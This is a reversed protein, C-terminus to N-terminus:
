KGDKFWMKGYIDTKIIKRIKPALMAAVDISIEQGRAQLMLDGNCRIEWPESDGLEVYLVARSESISFSIGDHEQTIM